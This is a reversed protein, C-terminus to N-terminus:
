ERMVDWLARAHIPMKLSACKPRNNLIQTAPIRTMNSSLLKTRNPCKYSKLNFQTLISHNYTPIQPSQRINYRLNDKKFICVIYIPQNPNFESVIVHIFNGLLKKIKKIKKRKKLWKQPIQTTICRDIAERICRVGGLEFIIFFHLTFNETRKLYM